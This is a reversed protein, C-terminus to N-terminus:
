RKAKAIVFVGIGIIALGLPLAGTLALLLGVAIDLVAVAVIMGRMPGSAKKPPKLYVSTGKGHSPARVPEIREVPAAKAAIKVGPIYLRDADDGYDLEGPYEAEDEPVPKPKRRPEGFWPDDLLAEFCRATARVDGMADHADFEGVGYYEACEVLKCWKWEEYRPNWEGHVAAFEKMVDFVPVKPLKVGAAGLFNMDFEANYAVLLRAGAFAAEVEAQRQMITQKDKVMAPSIGNISEAKPWRVRREPKFTDRFLVNGALDMVALSLIEDPRDGFPAVGTTETDFVIVEHPDYARLKELRGM